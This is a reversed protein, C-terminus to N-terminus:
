KNMLNIEKTRRVRKLTKIFGIPQLAIFREESYIRKTEYHFGRGYLGVDNWKIDKQLIRNFGLLADTYISDELNWQMMHKSMGFFKVTQKRGTSLIAEMQLAELSGYEDIKGRVNGYIIRRVTKESSVRVNVYPFHVNRCFLPTVHTKLLNGVCTQLTSYNLQSSEKITFRITFDKEVSSNGNEIFYLFNIIVFENKQFKIIKNEFLKSGRCEAIKEEFSLKREITNM